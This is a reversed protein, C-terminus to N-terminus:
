RYLKFSLPGREFYRTSRTTYSAKGGVNGNMSGTTCVTAGETSTVKMKIIYKKKPDLTITKGLMGRLTGANTGKWSGTALSAGDKVAISIDYTCNGKCESMIPRIESIAFSSAPSLVIESKFDKYDTVDNKSKGCGSEVILSTSKGTSEATKPTPTPSATTTASKSKDTSKSTKASATSKTPEKKATASKKSQMGACSVLAACILFTITHRLLKM